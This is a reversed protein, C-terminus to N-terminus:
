QGKAVLRARAQDHEDSPLLNLLRVFEDLLMDDWSKQGVHRVVREVDDVPMKSRESSFQAQVLMGVILMARGYDVIRGLALSDLRCFKEDTLQLGDVFEYYETDINATVAELVKGYGNKGDEILSMLRMAEDSDALKALRDPQKNSSSFM